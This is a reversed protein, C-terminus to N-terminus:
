LDAQATRDVGGADTPAASRSRGAGFKTHLFAIFNRWDAANIGHGGERVFFVIGGSLDPPHPDMQTLGREGFQAFVSSAARAARFAGGPDAWRDRRGNGLLIPRPAVLALLHHQDIAPSPCRVMERHFRPCFWHPYTRAIHATTEGTGGHTMSAGFRGSQHAIVADFASDFAAALLAAKGHRSHGWVAVPARGIRSDERLARRLASALAAWCSLAGSRDSDQTASLRELIPMARQPHDPVVEGPCFLALGLGHEVALEFPPVHIHRGLTLELMAEGLSSRHGAGSLAREIPRLGSPGRQFVQALIVARPSIGTPMILFMNMRMPEGDCGLALSWHEVGARGRLLDSHVHRKDVVSIDLAPIRGYIQAQLRERLDHALEKSWVSIPITNPATQAEHDRLNRAFAPPRASTQKVGIRGPQSTVFREVGEEAVQIAQVLERAACGLNCCCGERLTTRFARRAM